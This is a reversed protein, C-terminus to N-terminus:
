HHIKPAHSEIKIHIPVSGKTFQREVSPAPSDPEQCFWYTLKVEYQDDYMFEYPHSVVKQLMQQQRSSIDTLPM